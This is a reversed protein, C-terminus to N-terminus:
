DITGDIGVLYGVSEQSSGRRRTTVITFFLILFQPDRSAADLLFFPQSSQADGATVLAPTMAIGDSGICTKHISGLM